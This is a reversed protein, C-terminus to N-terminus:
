SPVERPSLTPAIPALTGNITPAESPMSRAVDINPTVTLRQSLARATNPLTTECDTFRNISVPEAIPLTNPNPFSTLAAPLPGHTVTYKAGNSAMDCHSSRSYPEAPSPTRYYGDPDLQPKSKLFGVSPQEDTKGNCHDNHEQHPLPQRSNKPEVISGPLGRGSRPALWQRCSLARWAPAVQM